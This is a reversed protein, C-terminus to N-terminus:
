KDSLPHEFIRPCREAIPDGPRFGSAAWFSKEFKSCKSKDFFATKPFRESIHPFTGCTSCRFRACVRNDPLRM